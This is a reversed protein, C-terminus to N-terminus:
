QASRNELEDTLFRFAELTATKDPTWDTIPLPESQEIGTYDDQPEDGEDFTVCELSVQVWLRYKKTM